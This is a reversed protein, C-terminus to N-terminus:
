EARLAIMPDVKTARRAPIYCALLAIGVMLASIMVFTLPDTASVDYLLQAIMRTLALAAALGIAVGLLVFKMGEGLILQVVDKGQAGLAIRVGIESVRQSVTYATVGYVGLSALLLAVVAFVSFLSLSFRRQDLSSSYIQELTRFKLPVDRNLSQAINRLAPILLQADQTTRVVLSFNRTHLPRQLYHVYVTPEIKLDLGFERVDGVVGVIQLLRNDGDMNGYQITHGIPNENPFHRRALTESILAVPQTVSRDGPGFLRGRQLRIGMANFYGPSAVRFEGYGKLLESDDILYQGNPAWGAMPLGNVGGIATVGPLAEARELLEQYFNARRQSSNEGEFAPPTMEMVVANESQFGPDVQLLKVFSKILLGAGILLSLTLTIQATVLAGRLRRSTGTASQSRGGEKLKEHLDRLGLRVIPILGLAIAALSALAFTFALARVDVRIEDARPLKGQNLGILADVGWYAILVALGGALLTIMLNEIILQRALRRRTAGLAARITFERSRATAQALVLNAVNACAILFLFAAASLMVLLSKRADGVISELLPTAAVDVLDIDETNEQRIQKGISSLEARAQEVTVGDRLRGIVLIGHSTRSPSAPSDVEFPLWVEVENPFNFGRPTVGVVTYSLGGIRLPEEDLKERGGLMRRWFGYSVLAVPNAGLRSEEPLFSRGIEPLIGLVKFFDQSVYAGPARVPEAGGLITMPFAMYEATGSLTRNRARVDLFNPEAFTIQRGKADVERLNLIRDAQPFPLARWLVADVVSFIATCAGIGLALSLLAAASYAPRSRLVRLAYKTERWIM